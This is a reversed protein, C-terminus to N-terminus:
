DFKVQSLSQHKGLAFGQAFDVDLSVLRDIIHLNHAWKGVTLSGVEKSLRIIAAVKKQAQAQNVLKDVIRGSIKLHDVPVRSIYLFSTLDSGVDDIALRCGTEKLAEAFRQAPNFHHILTSEDIEFCVLQPPVDWSWLAQRIFPMLSPDYLSHVSLNISIGTRVVSGMRQAFQYLATRIVWRDLTAMLGAREATPLFSAPALLKGDDAQLRLLLEFDRPRQQNGALSVVPQCHLQLRDHPQEAPKQPDQSVIVGKNTGLAHAVARILRQEMGKDIAIDPRSKLITIMLSNFIAPDSTM